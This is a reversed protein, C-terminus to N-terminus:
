PIDVPNARLTQVSLHHYTTTILILQRAPKFLFSIARNVGNPFPDEPSLQLSKNRKRGQNEACTQM